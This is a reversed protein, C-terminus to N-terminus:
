HKEELLTDLFKLTEDCFETYHQGTGPGSFGTEVKRIVGKRDIFLTTPYAMHGDLNYLVSQLSEHGRPGAYLFTYGAGTQGIFREM